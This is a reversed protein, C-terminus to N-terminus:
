VKSELKEMFNSLSEDLDFYAHGEYKKYSVKITENEFSCFKVKKYILFLAALILEKNHSPIDIIKKRLKSNLYASPTSMTVFSFKYIFSHNKFFEFYVVNLNLIISENLKYLYIFFFSTM